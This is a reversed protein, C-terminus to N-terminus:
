SAKETSRSLRWAAVAAAAGLVTVLDFRGGVTWGFALGTVGVAAWFAARRIM